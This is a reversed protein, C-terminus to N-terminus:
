ARGIAAALFVMRRQHPRQLPHRSILHPFLSYHITFLFFPKREIADTILNEGNVMVGNVM